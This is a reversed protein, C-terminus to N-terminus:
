QENRHAFLQTINNDLWNGKKFLSWNDVLTCSLVAIATGILAGSLVDGLFHQSLYVRSFGALIATIIFIYKLYEKKSILMLIVFIAFATITHGSPFTNWSHMKVGAVLHLVEENEFYKTPRPMGNFIIQKTIFVFLLTFLSAFLLYLSWRIRFFALFVILLAFVVGDGLHTVYKFFQDAIESHWQNVMLHSTSKGYKVIMFLMWILFPLMLFWISKEKIVQKLYKM